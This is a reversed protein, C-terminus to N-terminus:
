PTDPQPVGILQLAKREELDLAKGIGLAFAKDAVKSLYVLSWHALYLSEVVWNQSPALVFRWSGDTGPQFYEGIGDPNSHGLNSLNWYALRYTASLNLDECMKDINVGAWTHWNKSSTYGYRKAIKDAEARLSGLQAQLDSIAATTNPGNARGYKVVREAAQVRSVEAYDLFRRGRENPKRAIWMAQIALELLSRVVLAADEGYGQRCLLQVAGHSKFGKALFVALVGYEEPGKLGKQNVANEILGRLKENLSFLHATKEDFQIM